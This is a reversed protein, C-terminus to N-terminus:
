VLTHPVYLEFYKVKGTWTHIHAVADNHSKIHRKRYFEPYYNMGNMLSSHTHTNTHTDQTTRQSMKEPMGCRLSSLYGWGIDRVKNSGWSLINLYKVLSPHRRNLPCACINIYTLHLQFYDAQLHSKPESAFAVTSM